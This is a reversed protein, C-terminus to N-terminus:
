LEVGSLLLLLLLLLLHPCLPCKLNKIIIKCEDECIYVKLRANQGVTLLIVSVAM